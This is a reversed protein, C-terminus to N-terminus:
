TKNTLVRGEKKKNNKKKKKKNGEGSTNVESKENVELVADERGTSEANKPEEPLKTEVAAM